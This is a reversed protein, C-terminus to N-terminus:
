NRPIRLTNGDIIDTSTLNNYDRIEEWRASSGFFLTSIRFLTDNPQITYIWNGAADVTTNPFNPLQQGGQAPPATTTGQEPPHTQNADEEQTNQADLIAALEANLRAVENNLVANDLRLLDLEHSNEVLTDIQENADNLRGNVSVLQWVLIAFVALVAFLAIAGVKRIDLRYAPQPPKSRPTDTALSPHVVSAEIPQESSTASTLRRSKPMDNLKEDRNRLAEEKEVQEKRQEKRNQETALDLYAQYEAEPDSAKGMRQYPPRRPLDSGSGEGFIGNILAKKAIEDEDMEETPKIGDNELAPTVLPREHENSKAPPTADEFLSGVHTRSFNEVSGFEEEFKEKNKREFDNM